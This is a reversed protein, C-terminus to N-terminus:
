AFSWSPARECVIPGTWVAASCRVVFLKSIYHGSAHEPDVYKALIILNIFVLIVPALVAVVVLAVDVMRWGDLWILPSELAEPPSKKHYAACQGKRTEGNNSPSCPAIM